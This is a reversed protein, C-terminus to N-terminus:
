AAADRGSAAARPSTPPRPGRPTCGTGDRLAAGASSAAGVAEAPGHTAQFQDVLLASLPGLGGADHAADIGVLVMRESGPYPLPRLVVRDLVSFVATTAGIGLALTGAAFATFAPSRRLARLAFRADDRVWGMAGNRGERARRRVAWAAELHDVSLRLWFVPRGGWARRGTSSRGGRTCAAREELFFAEMQQGYRERHARPYLRLLARFARLGPDSIPM